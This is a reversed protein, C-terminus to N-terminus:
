ERACVHLGVKTARADFRKGLRELRRGLTGVRQKQVGVVADFLHHLLLDEEKASALMRRYAVADSEPPTPGRLAFLMREYASMATEFNAKARPFSTAKGRHIVGREFRGCAGDALYVLRGHTLTKAQPQPKALSPAGDRCGRRLAL